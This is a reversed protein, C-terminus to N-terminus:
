KTPEDPQRPPVATVAGSVQEADGYYRYQMIIGAASILWENDQESLEAGYGDGYKKIIGSTPSYDFRLVSGNSLVVTVRRETQESLPQTGNKYEEDNPFIRVWGNWEDNETMGCLIDYVRRTSEGDRLTVSKIKISDGIDTKDIDADEFKVSVIDGASDVGYIISLTDGYTIQFDTDLAAIDEDTLYGSTYWLSTQWRDFSMPQLWLEFKMLHLGEDNEMILRSLDEAGKVCYFRTGGHERYPEGRWSALMGSEYPSMDSFAYSAMKDDVRVVTLRLANESAGWTDSPTFFWVSFIGLGLVLAISAAATLWRQLKRPVKSGAVYEEAELVFDDSIQSIAMSIMQRTM